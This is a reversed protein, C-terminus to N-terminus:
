RLEGTPPEAFRIGYFTHAVDGMSGMVMGSTTNITPSHQAAGFRALLLFVVASFCVQHMIKAQETEVNM